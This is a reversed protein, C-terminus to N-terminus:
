DRICKCDAWGSVSGLGTRLAMSCGYHQDRLPLPGVETHKPPLVCLRLLPFMSPFTKQNRVDLFSFLDWKPMELFGFPNIQWSLMKKIRRGHARQGGKEKIGAELATQETVGTDKRLGVLPLFPSSRVHLLSYVLASIWEMKLITKQLKVPKFQRSQNETNLPKPVKSAIMVASVLPLLAARWWSREGTM